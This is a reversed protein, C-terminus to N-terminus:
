SKGQVLMNGEDDNECILPHMETRHTRQIGTLLDLWHMPVPEEIYASELTGLQGAMMRIAADIMVERIEDNVQIVIYVKKM